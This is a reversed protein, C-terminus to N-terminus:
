LLSIPLETFINKKLSDAVKTTDTILLNYYAYAAYLPLNSFQKLKGMAQSYNSYFVGMFHLSSRMVPSSLYPFLEILESVRNQTYLASSLYCLLTGFLRKKELIDANSADYYELLKYMERIGKCPSYQLYANCYHNLITLELWSLRYDSIHNLTFGPLTIQLAEWLAKTSKEKNSICKANKYSVYQKYIIDDENCLLFLKETNRQILMTDSSHTQTLKQRLEYLATEHNNGYFTFVADSIGLRQLLSQALAVDPLLTGKEIKSLKSRSCLGMCLVQQSVNQEMRLERILRGLTLTEKSFIEYIGESFGSVDISKKIAYSVLPVEAIDFSKEFLSIGFESFLYQQINTSYPSEISHASFFATKFLIMAEDINGMHYNALGTLFTLEHLMTNVDNKVMKIRFADALKLADSYNKQKILYKSYVIAYESLLRDKEPFAIQSNELYSSIGTCIQLCADFNNTYFEEQAIAIILEIENLSLLLNGFNFIDMNPRSIYLAKWLMDRIDKHNGYGSCLQLKSHLLLWEQYYYKNKAFNREEVKDLEEYAEKLQWCDIYFGARKLTYFCDFDTRSAFIPYAECPTGAHEMLAQFTAPSVGATGNEIRSLSLPCCIGESLKEQSLGLKLRAERIIAGANQVSM